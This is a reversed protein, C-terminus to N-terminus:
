AGNISEIVSEIDDDMYQALTEVAIRMMHGKDIFKSDETAPLVIQINHHKMPTFRMKSDFYEVDRKWGIKILYKEFQKIKINYVRQVTLIFEM